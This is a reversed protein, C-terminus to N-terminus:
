EKAGYRALMKENLRDIRALTEDDGEKLKVRISWVYGRSNRELKVSELEDAQITVPAETM